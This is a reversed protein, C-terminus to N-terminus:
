KKNLNKYFLELKETIKKWNYNESVLKYANKQVEQYTQQDTLIKSIKEVFQNEDNAILAHKDAVVDLGEVGVSTSIVPVGAAMAALIKLRTGGPGFIPAIFLTAHGFLRKVAAVDNARIDKIIVGDRKLRSIKNANQGSIIIKLDPLVNNLLPFIKKVLYNAAEVNQLWNFNGQFLITAKDLNKSPITKAIMEDGAGNPIITTKITPELTKIVKEDPESVAVVLSAKKWFHREWYALKLTDLYFFPRIFTNLSRVFHQYVKYEITQEVLLVPVDTRPIHPMIYFTEAHIVDFEHTKLLKTIVNRAESSFNRVILFPLPSFISKFINGIQWPNKPRKCLYIHDAFKKLHNIYNKEEENKYLSVLTINHNIKLYKLLNFTRIQGGSAPPYPVYPALMLIKM